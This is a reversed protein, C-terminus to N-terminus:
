RLGKVDALMEKGVTLGPTDTERPTEAEAETPAETPAPTLADSGSSLAEGEVVAETENVRVETVIVTGTVVRMVVLVTVDQLVLRRLWTAQGVTATTSVITPVLVVTVWDVIVITGLM